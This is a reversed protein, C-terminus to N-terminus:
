HSSRCARVDRRYALANRVILDIDEVFSRFSGYARANVKDLATSHSAISKAAFVEPGDDRVHARDVHRFRICAVCVRARMRVSVLPCARARVCVCLSRVSRIDMPHEILRDYEPMLHAAVPHHFPRLGKDSLLKDCVDRLVIRLQASVCVCVCVCM